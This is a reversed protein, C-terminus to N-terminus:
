SPEPPLLETLGSLCATHISMPLTSVLSGSGYHTQYRNSLIALLKYGLLIRQSGSVGSAVNINRLFPLDGQYEGQVSSSQFINSNLGTLVEGNIGLAAFDLSCGGLIPNKLSDFGGAVAQQVM